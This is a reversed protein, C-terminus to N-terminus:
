NTAASALRHAVQNHRRPVAKLSVREYRGIVARLERMRPDDRRRTWLEVLAKCDTHVAIRHASRRLGIKLLTVLAEIEAEFSQRSGGRASLEAAVRGSPTVLVVGLRTVRGGDGGSIAAGDSWGSFWGHPSAAHYLALVIRDRVCLISPGEMRHMRALRTARWVVRDALRATEEGDILPRLTAIAREPVDLLAADIAANLSRAEHKTRRRVSDTGAAPGSAAGISVVTPEALDRGGARM